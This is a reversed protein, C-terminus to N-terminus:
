IHVFWPITVSLEQCQSNRKSYYGRCVAQFIFHALLLVLSSCIGVVLVKSVNDKWLWRDKRLSVSLLLDLCITLLLVFGLSRILIAFGLSVGAIMWLRVDRVPAMYFAITLLFFFSFPTDSWLRGKCEFFYASLFFLIMFAAVYRFSYYRRLFWVTLLGWAFMWLSMYQNLKPMDSVVSKVMPALLLPFGVPYYPPAYHDNYDCFRFHTKYFPHGESINKAESYYAAFDDGWEATGDVYFAALPLLLLIWFVGEILKGKM